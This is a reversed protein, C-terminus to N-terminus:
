RDERERERIPWGFESFKQAAEEDPFLIMQTEEGGVGDIVEDGKRLVYACTGIPGVLLKGNAQFKQSPKLSIAIFRQNEVTVEEVIEGFLSHLNTLACLGHWAASTVDVSKHHVPDFTVEFLRSISKRLEPSDLIQNGLNKASEFVEKAENKDEISFFDDADEINKIYGIRVTESKSNEIPVGDVEVDEGSREIFNGAHREEEIELESMFEGGVRSESMLTVIVERRQIVREREEGDVAITRTRTEEKRWTQSNKRSYSKPTVAPTEEGQPEKQEELGTKFQVTSKKGIPSLSDKMMGSVCLHEYRHNIEDKGVIVFRYERQDAHKKDKVFLPYVKALTADQRAKLFGYVDDTYLVPGHLVQLFDHMTVLPRTGTSNHTFKGDTGKAGFQDIYMLGLAQAFKTPQHITTYDNYTPPLAKRLRQWENDSTPQIATCFIWSGGGFTYSEAQNQSTRSTQPGLKVETMGLQHLAEEQEQREEVYENKESEEKRNHARGEQEDQILTEGVDQFRHPSSILITASHALSFEAEIGKVLIYDPREDLSKGIDVYQSLLLQGGDLAIQADSMVFPKPNSSAEVIDLM